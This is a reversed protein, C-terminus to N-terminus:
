SRESANHRSRARSTGNLRLQSAAQVREDNLLTRGRYRGRKEHPLQEFLQFHRALIRIQKAFHTGNGEHWEFAIYESAKIRRMGKLRLTTFNQLILLQNIETLSAGRKKSKKLDEKIIARLEEWGKIQSPNKAETAGAELMAEEEDAVEEEDQDEEVGLETDEEEEVHADDRGGVPVVKM